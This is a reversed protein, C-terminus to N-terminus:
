KNGFIDSGVAQEVMNAIRKSGMGSSGRPGPIPIISPLVSSSLKKYDVQPIEKALDEIVFIIAFREREEPDKIKEGLERFYKTNRLRDGVYNIAKMYGKLAKIHHPNLSPRLCVEMNNAIRCSPWFELGKENEAYSGNREYPERMNEKYISIYKIIQPIMLLSANPDKRLNMVYHRALAKIIGGMEEDAVKPPPIEGLKRAEKREHRRTKREARTEKRELRRKKRWERREDKDKPKLERIHRRQYIAEAMAFQEPKARFVKLSCLNNPRFVFNDVHFGSAKHHNDFLHMGLDDEVQEAHRYDSSGLVYDAEKPKNRLFYDVMFDELLVDDYTAILFDLERLEPDISLWLSNPFNRDKRYDEIRKSEDDNVVPNPFENTKQLLGAIAARVINDTMKEGEPVLVLKGSALEDKYERSVIDIFRDPGIAVTYDLDESGLMAELSWQFLYKGGLKLHQKPIKVTQDEFKDLKSYGLLYSFLELQDVIPVGNIKDFIDGVNEVITDVTVGTDPHGTGKLLEYFEDKDFELPAQSNGTGALLIGIPKM